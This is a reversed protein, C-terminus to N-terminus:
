RGTFSATQKNLFAAVANAHDTTAGCRAQAEAEKALSETLSHSSGFGVTEKIAAYATTPGAALKTALADVVSSLDAAPVVASVLGMELAQSAAVPEALMLM